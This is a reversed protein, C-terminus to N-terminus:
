CGWDDADDTQKVLERLSTERAETAQYIDVLAYNVSNEARLYILMNGKKLLARFQEADQETKVLVKFGADQLVKALAITCENDFWNGEPKITLEVNDLKSPMWYYNRNWGIYNYDAIYSDFYLKADVKYRFGSFDLEDIDAMSTYTYKQPDTLIDKAATGFTYNGVGNDKILSVIGEIIAQSNFYDSYVTRLVNSTQVAAFEAGKVPEGKADALYVSHRGEKVVFGFGKVYECGLVDDFRTVEEGKADLVVVREDAFAIYGIGEAIRVNNYKARVIVEGEFNMVGWESGNKFVYADANWERVNEVKSPCKYTEGKTDYFLVRGDSDKVPLRGENFFYDLPEHGKRLRFVEEGSKDIVIYKEEKVVLAIGDNFPFVNDYEPKIVVEGKTNVFGCKNDETEIELLGETIYPACQTIEKKNIPDLVAVKEGSTNLLCIREKPFVAPIIMEEKFVGISKIGDAGPVAEPKEGVKYLTYTGENGEKVTFYGGVVPSPCEKFEESFLVKGDPGCFSWHGDESEQVPIYDYAKEGSSCGVFAGALACVVSAVFIKSTKM